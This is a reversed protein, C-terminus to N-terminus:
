AESDTLPMAPSNQWYNRHARRLGKFIAVGAVAFALTGAAASVAVDVMENYGAPVPHDLQAQVTATKENIQKDVTELSSTVDIRNATQVEVLSEKAKELNTIDTKQQNIFDRQQDYEVHGPFFVNHVGNYVLAGTAFTAIIAVYDIPAGEHIHDGEMIFRSFASHQNNEVRSEDPM